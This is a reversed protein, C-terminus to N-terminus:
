HHKSGNRVGERGFHCTHDGPKIINMERLRLLIGSPERDALM